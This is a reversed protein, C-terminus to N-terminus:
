ATWISEASGRRIDIGELVRFLKTRNNYLKSVIIGLSSQDFRHCVNRRRPLRHVCGLMGTSGRFCMCNQDFACSVWPDLVAKVVFPENHFIGYTGYVEGHPEYQCPDDGYFQFMERGTRVAISGSQDIALQLGRETARTFIAELPTTKSWRVSSDMWVVIDAKDILTRIIPPKWAYCKMERVFPPLKKFPFDLLTCQCKKEALIRQARTMGLDYVVFTCNSLRPFVHRTFSQVLTQLPIFYSADVATVFIYKHPAVTRASEAMADLYPRITKNRTALIQRLRVTPSPDMHTCAPEPEKSDECSTAPLVSEEEPFEALKKKIIMELEELESLQHHPAALSSNARQSEADRGMGFNDDQLAGGDDKWPHFSKGDTYLVHLLTGFYIVVLLLLLFALTFLPLVIGFSTTAYVYSPHVSAVDYRIIDYRLRILFSYFCSLVPHHRQTFTGLTFLPLM